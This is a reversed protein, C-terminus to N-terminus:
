EKICGDTLADHFWMNNKKARNIKEANGVVFNFLVVRAEKLYQSFGNLNFSKGSMYESSDMFSIRFQNEPNKALRSAISQEHEPLSVTGSVRNGVYKKVNITYEDLVKKWLKRVNPRGTMLFFGGNFEKMHRNDPHEEIGVLESKDAIATEIFTSLFNERVFADCEFMFFPLGRNAIELIFTTRALMFQWFGATGYVVNETMEPSQPMFPFPFASIKWQSELRGALAYMESDTIMFITSEALLTPAAKQLNCLFHLTMNRYSFNVFTILFASAQHNIKDFHNIAAEKQRELVAKSDVKASWNLVPVKNPAIKSTVFREQLVPFDAASQGSFHEGPEKMNSALTLPTPHNYYVTYLTNRDCYDIFWMEWMTDQRNQAKLDRYWHSPLLDAVQPSYDTYTESINKQWDLFKKWMKKVPAYGWTGILLYKYETVHWPISLQPSVCSSHFCNTQRQLSYGIVDPQSKYKENTQILWELAYKSLVLDDELMVVFDKDTLSPDWCGLWQGIVNVNKKHEKIFKKGRNWSLTKAFNVVQANNGIRPKDICFNLNVIM